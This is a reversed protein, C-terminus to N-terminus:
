LCQSLPPSLYVYLQGRGCVQLAKWNLTLGYYAKAEAAELLQVVEALAVRSQETSMDTAHYYYDEGEDKSQLSPHISTQAHTHFLLIPTHPAHLKTHM